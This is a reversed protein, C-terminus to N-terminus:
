KRCVWLWGEHNLFFGIGEKRCIILSSGRMKEISIPSVRIGQGQQDEWGDYYIGNKLNKERVVQNFPVEINKEFRICKCNLDFGMKDIKDVFKNMKETAFYAWRDQKEKKVFERIFFLLDEM